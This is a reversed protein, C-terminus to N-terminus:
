ESIALNNIILVPHLSIFKDIINESLLVFYHSLKKWNPFPLLLLLNQM